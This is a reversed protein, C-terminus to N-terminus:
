LDLGHHERLLTRGAAYSDLDIMDDPNLMIGFAAELASVLTLQGVSDWQDVGKYELGELQDASVELTEMFVNDYKELDSM